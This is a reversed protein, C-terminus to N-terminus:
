TRVLAKGTKPHLVMRQKTLSNDMPERNMFGFGESLATMSTTAAQAAASKQRDISDEHFEDDDNLYAFKKSEFHNATALIGHDMWRLKDDDCLAEITVAQGRKPGSVTFLANTTLKYSRIFEVAKDFDTCKEFAERIVVTPPMHSPNRCPGHPASNITIAFRGKAVGSLMGVYGPWTVATFPGADGNVFDVVITYKDLGDIDWDLHRVHVMGIRPVWKVVSTCGQQSLEYSLNLSVVRSIPVGTAEAWAGMEERYLGGFLLHSKSVIWEAPGLLISWWGTQDQLDSWAKKMLRRANAKEKAIVVEWRNEPKASLDVKYRM